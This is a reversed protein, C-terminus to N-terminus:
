PKKNDIIKKIYTDVEKTMLYIFLNIWKKM